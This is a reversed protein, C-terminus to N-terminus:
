QVWYAFVLYIGLSNREKNDPTLQLYVYSCVTRGNDVHVVILTPDASSLWTYLHSYLNCTHLGIFMQDMPGGAIAPCM